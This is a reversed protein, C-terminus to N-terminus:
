RRWPRALEPPGDKPITAISFPPGVYEPNAEAELELIRRVRNVVEELSLEDEKFLRGAEAPARTVVGEYLEGQQDTVEHLVRKSGIRYIGSCARAEPTPCMSVREVRKLRLEHWDVEVQVAQVIAVGSEYGAILYEVPYEGAFDKQRVLGRRLYGDFWFFVKAAEEQVAESVQSVTADRALRMGVLGVFSPFSYPAVAHPNGLVAHLGAM